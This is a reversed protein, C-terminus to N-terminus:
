TSTNVSFLLVARIRNLADVRYYIHTCPPCMTFFSNGALEASYICIQTILKVLGDGIHAWSTRMQHGQHSVIRYLGRTFGRNKLNVCLNAAVNQFSGSM